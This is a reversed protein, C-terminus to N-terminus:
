TVYIIMLMVHYKTVIAAMKVM